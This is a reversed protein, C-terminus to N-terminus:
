LQKEAPRRVLYTTSGNTPHNDIAIQGFETVYMRKHPIGGHKKANCTYLGREYDISTVRSHRCAPCPAYISFSVADDPVDSEWMVGDHKWYQKM